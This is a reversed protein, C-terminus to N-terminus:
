LPLHSFSGMVLRKMMARMAAPKMSAAMSMQVPFPASQHGLETPTYRHPGPALDAPPSVKANGEERGSRQGGDQSPNSVYLKGRKRVM